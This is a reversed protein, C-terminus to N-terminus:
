WRGASAGPCNQIILRPVPCSRSETALHSPITPRANEVLIYATFGPRSHARSPPPTRASLACSRSHHQATHVDHQTTRTQPDLLAHEGQRSFGSDKASSIRKTALTAATRKTPGLPLTDPRRPGHILSIDHFPISQPATFVWLSIPMAGVFYISSYSEGLSALPRPRHRRRGVTGPNIASHTPRLYWQLLFRGDQANKKLHSSHSCPQGSRCLLSRGLELGGFSRTSCAPAFGGLPDDLHSISALLDALAPSAM